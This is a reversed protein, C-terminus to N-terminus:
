GYLPSAFQQPGMSPLTSGGMGAPGALNVGSWFTPRVPAIPSGASGPVNSERTYTDQQASSLHPCFTPLDVCCDQYKQCRMDCYCPTGGSPQRGQQGCRGQCLSRTLRHCEYEYDACCDGWTHCSADCTCRKNRSLGGCMGRCSELDEADCPPACGAAEQLTPLACEGAGIAPAVVSRTRTKISGDGCTKSCASWEGWPGLICDAHCAQGGCQRMQSPQADDCGRGTGLHPRIVRHVRVQMGHGCSVSCDSWESWSLECDQDGGCLAPNCRRTEMREAPCETGAGSNNRLIQLERSQEGGGCTQSCETWETWHSWCDEPCLFTNCYGDESPLEEPCELGGFAPPVAETANRSRRGVGCAESCPTWQGWRFHCDKKNPVVEVVFDLTTNMPGTLSSSNSVLTVTIVATGFSAPGSALTVLLWGLTDGETYVVEPDPVLATHNSEAYVEVELGSQGPSSGASVGTLLVVHAHSGGYHDQPLVLDDIPDVEPATCAASM